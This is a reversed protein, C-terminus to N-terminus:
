SMQYQMIECDETLTEKRNMIKSRYTHLQKTTQKNTEKKKIRNKKKRLGIGVVSRATEYGFCVM